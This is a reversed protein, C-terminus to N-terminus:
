LKCLQLHAGIPNGSLSYRGIVSPWGQLALRWQRGNNHPGVTSGKAVATSDPQALSVVQGRSMRAGGELDRGTTMQRM